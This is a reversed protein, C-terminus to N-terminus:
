KLTVIEIAYVSDIITNDEMLIIDCYFDNPDHIVIAMGTTLDVNDNNYTRVTDSTIKRCLVPQNSPAPKTYFLSGEKLNSFTTKPKVKETISVLTM